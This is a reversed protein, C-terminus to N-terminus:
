PRPRQSMNEAIWNAMWGAIVGVPYWWRVTQGVEDITLFGVVTTGIVAAIIGALTTVRFTALRAVFYRVLYGIFLGLMFTGAAPLTASPMLM